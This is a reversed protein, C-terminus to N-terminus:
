QNIDIVTVSSVGGRHKWLSRGVRLLLIILYPSSVLLWAALQGEGLDTWVNFLLGWVGGDSLYEGVVRVGVFYVAVPLVTLSLALVATAIFLERGPRFNM